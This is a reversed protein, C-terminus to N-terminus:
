PSFSPTVALGSYTLGLLILVQSDAIAAYVYYQESLRQHSMLEPIVPQKHSRSVDLM